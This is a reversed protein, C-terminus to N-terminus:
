GTKISFIKTWMNFRSLSRFYSNPPWQFLRFDKSQSSHFSKMGAV